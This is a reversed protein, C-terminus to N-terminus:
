PNRKTFTRPGKIFEDDNDDADDPDDCQRISSGYGRRFGNRWLIRDLAKEKL